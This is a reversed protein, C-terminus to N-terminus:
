YTFICDVEKIEEVNTLDTGKSGLRNKSNKNKDM